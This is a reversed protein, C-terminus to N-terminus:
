HSEEGYGYFAAFIEDRNLDIGCLNMEDVEEKTYVKGLQAIDYDQEYDLDVSDNVENNQEDIDEILTAICGQIDQVGNLQREIVDCRQELIKLHDQNFIKYYESAVRFLDRVMNINCRIIDVSYQNAQHVWDERRKVSLRSYDHLIQEEPGNRQIEWPNQLNRISKHTNKVLGAGIEFIQLISLDRELERLLDSLQVYDSLLLKLLEPEQFSATHRIHQIRGSMKKLNFKFDTVMEFSIPISCLKLKQTCMVSEHLTNTVAIAPYCSPLTSWLQNRLKGLRIKMDSHRKNIIKDYLALIAANFTEILVHAYSYVKPSLEKSGDKQGQMPISPDRNLVIDKLDIMHRESDNMDPTKKQYLMEYLSWYIFDFFYPERSICLSQSLLRGVCSYEYSEGKHSIGFGTMILNVICDKLLKNSRVNTEYLHDILLRLRSTRDKSFLEIITIQAMVQVIEYAKQDNQYDSLIPQLGHTEMWLELYDIQSLTSLFHGHESKINETAICLTCYITDNCIDNATDKKTNVDIKGIAIRLKTANKTVFSSVLAIKLKFNYVFWFFCAQIVVEVPSLAIM